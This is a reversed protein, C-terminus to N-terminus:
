FIYHLYVFEDIDQIEVWPDQNITIRDFYTVQEYGSVHIGAAGAHFVRSLEPIIVDRNRRLDIRSLWLAWDWSQLFIYFFLFYFYM